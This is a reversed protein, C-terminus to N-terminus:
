KHLSLGKFILVKNLYSYIENVLKYGRRKAFFYNSEVFFDISTELPTQMEIRVTLSFYVEEVLIEGYTDNIDSVTWNQKKCYDLFAAKLKEYSTKYYHTKLLEKSAREATEFTYPM